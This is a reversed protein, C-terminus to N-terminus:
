QNNLHTHLFEVADLINLDEIFADEQLFLEQFPLNTIKFHNEIAEAFQVLNISEFGLDAIFRSEPEIGGGFGLALDPFMTEIIGIIESVITERSFGSRRSSNLM